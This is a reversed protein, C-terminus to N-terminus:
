RVVMVREHQRPSQGFVFTRPRLGVSSVEPPAKDALELRVEPYLLVQQQRSEPASPRRRKHVPSNLVVGEQTEADLSGASAVSTGCAGERLAQALVDSELLPLQERGALLEQRVVNECFDRTSGGL